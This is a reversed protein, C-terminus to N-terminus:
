KTIERVKGKQHYKFVEHCPLSRETLPLSNWAEAGKCHVSREIFTCIIRAENWVMANRLAYHTVKKEETYASYSQSKLKNVYLKICNVSTLIVKGLGADHM